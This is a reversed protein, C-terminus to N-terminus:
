SIHCINEWDRHVERIYVSLMTELTGNFREVMGDSHPYYATTRTKTIHMVKCMGQFLRREYPNGQDSHIVQLVGFRAIVIISALTKAKMKRMTFAGTWKNFYDSVDSINYM